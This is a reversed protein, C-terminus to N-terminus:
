HTYLDRCSRACQSISTTPQMTHMNSNEGEQRKLRHTGSIGCAGIIHTILTIRAVNERRKVVPFIYRSMIALSYHIEADKLSITHDGAICTTTTPINHSEIRKGGM